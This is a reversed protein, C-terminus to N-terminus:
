DGLDLVVVRLGTKAGGRSVGGGSTLVFRFARGSAAEAGLERTVAVATNKAIAALVEARPTAYILKAITACPATKCIAVIQMRILPVVDRLTAFTYHLM